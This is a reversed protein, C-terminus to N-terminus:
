TRKCWDEFAEQLRDEAYYHGHDCGGTDENYMWTCLSQRFSCLVVSRPELGGNPNWPLPKALLVTAGYSLADGARPTADRLAGSWFTQPKEKPPPCLAYFVGLGTWSRELNLSDAEPDCDNAEGLAERVTEFDPESDKLQYIHTNKLRCFTEGDDLVVIFDGLHPTSM